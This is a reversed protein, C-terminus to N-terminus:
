DVWVLGSVRLTCDVTYHISEAHTWQYLHNDVLVLENTIMKVWPRTSFNFMAVMLSSTKFKMISQVLSLSLWHGPIQCSDTLLLSPSLPIGTIQYPSKHGLTSDTKDLPPFLYSDLQLQLLKGMLIAYTNITTSHHSLPVIQHNQWWGQMRAPEIERGVVRSRKGGWEENDQLIM